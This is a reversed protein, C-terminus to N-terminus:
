FTRAPMDGTKWGAPVEGVAAGSSSFREPRGGRADHVGGVGRM